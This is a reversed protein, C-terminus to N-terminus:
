NSYQFYFSSGNWGDTASKLIGTGAGPIPKNIRLTEKNFSSELNAYVSCREGDESVKYIYMSIQDTGTKPDKIIEALNSQYMDNKNIMEKLILHLDYEKNASVQSPIFCPDTIAQGIQSVDRKRISDRITEQAKTFFFLFSLIIFEILLASMLLEIFSIDEIKFIHDTKM